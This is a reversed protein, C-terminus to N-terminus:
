SIVYSLLTVLTQEQQYLPQQLKLVDSFAANFLPTWGDISCLQNINAHAAILLDVIDKHGCQAAIHLSTSGEALTQNVDAGAKILTAM